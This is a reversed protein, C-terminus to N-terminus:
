LAFLNDPARPPEFYTTVCQRAPPDPRTGRPAVARQTWSLPPPTRSTSPPGSRWCWSQGREQAAPPKTLLMPPWTSGGPRRSLPRQSMPATNHCPSSATASSTAKHAPGSRDAGSPLGSAATPFPKFTHPQRRAALLRLLPRQSILLSLAPM